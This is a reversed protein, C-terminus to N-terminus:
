AAQGGPCVRWPRTAAAPGGAGPVAARVGAAGREGSASQDAMASHRGPESAPLGATPSTAPAPIAPGAPGGLAAGAPRGPEGPGPRAPRGTPLPGAGPGPVLREGTHGAFVEASDADPMRHIGLANVHSAVGAGARASTTTLVVPLGVEAGRSILDRLMPQPLGECHDFWALGDGDIGIDRLDEDAALIDQGVLWALRAAASAHGASGLSFLM